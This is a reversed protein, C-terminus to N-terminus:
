IRRSADPLLFEPYKLYRVVPPCPNSVKDKNMHFCVVFYWFCMHTCMFPFLCVHICLSGCQGIELEGHFCNTDAKQVNIHRCHSVCVCVCLGVACTLFCRIRKIVVAEIECQDLISMSPSVCVSACLCM